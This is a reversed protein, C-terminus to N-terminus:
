QIRKWNIIQVDEISATNLQEALQRRIEVIDDWTELNRHVEASGFKLGGTVFVVYYRPKIEEGM